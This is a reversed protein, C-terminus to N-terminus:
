PLILSVARQQESQHKIVLWITDAPMLEGDFRDAWEVLLVSDSDLYEDWGMGVAEAPSSLRYLDFHAIAPTTDRHEHVLSFTPSAGADQAGLGRLIGQVLHTKGAGLDGVLGIVDGAELCTSLCAGFERMEEPSSITRPEDSFFKETNKM